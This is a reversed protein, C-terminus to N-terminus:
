QSCVTMNDQWPMRPQDAVSAGPDDVTSENTTVALTEDLAHPVEVVAHTLAADEQGPRQVHRRLRRLRRWQRLTPALINNAATAGHQSSSVTQVAPVTTPKTTAADVPDGVDLEDAIVGPQLQPLYSVSHNHMSTTFTLLRPIVDETTITIFQKLICRAADYM